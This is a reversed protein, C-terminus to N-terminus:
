KTQIVLGNWNVFLNVLNTLGTFENISTIAITFTQKWVLSFIYTLLHALQAFALTHNKQLAMCKLLWHLCIICINVCTYKQVNM